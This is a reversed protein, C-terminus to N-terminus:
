IILVQLVDEHTQIMIGQVVAGVCAAVSAEAGQNEKPPRGEKEETAMMM